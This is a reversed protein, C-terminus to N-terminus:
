CGLYNETILSVHVFTLLLFQFHAKNLWHAHNKKGRLDNSLPKQGRSWSDQGFIGSTNCLWTNCHLCWETGRPLTTWRRNLFLTLNLPHPTPLLGEARYHAWHHNHWKHKQSCLWSKFSCFGSLCMPIAFFLLKFQSALCILIHSPYHQKMPDSLNIFHPVSHLTPLSLFLVRTVAADKLQTLM